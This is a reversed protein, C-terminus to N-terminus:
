HSYGRRNKIVDMLKKRIRGRRRTVEMEGKIKGEM